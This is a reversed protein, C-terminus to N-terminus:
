SIKEVKIIRYPSGAIPRKCVFGVEFKIDTDETYTLGVLNGGIFLRTVRYM